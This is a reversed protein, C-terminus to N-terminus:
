WRAEHQEVWGTLGDIEIEEGSDIVLRGSYRGFVQHVQSKAVLLNTSAVRKFFPQFTLDVREGDASTMRWPDMLHSRDYQFLVDAGLKTLRGDVCIGNETMGTGDTWGAGINLGVVRDGQVGSASGWNWFCGYKWVGRGFDLCAFSSEGEFRYEEAGIRVAGSAPLCNQKSTFHFRRASWPIVVNLTEHGAPRRVAIDAGMPAGGFRRSQVQLRVEAGGDAIATRLGGRQFLAEGDIGEPLLCGSGLPAVATQELFRHTELDLFYVFSVALYDLHAITASFLHKESMIAWYNWRKKRGWSGRLNCRHLPVRSWGVSEPLLRGRSDCLDIPAAIEKERNLVEHRPAAQEM